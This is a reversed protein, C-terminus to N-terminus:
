DREFLNRPFDINYHANIQKRYRFLFLVVAQLIYKNTPYISLDVMHSQAVSVDFKSFGKHDVLSSDTIELLWNFIDNIICLQEPGISASWMEVPIYQLYKTTLKENKTMIHM